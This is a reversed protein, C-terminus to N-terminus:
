KQNVQGEVFSCGEEYIITCSPLISPAFVKVITCLANVEFDARSDLQFYRDMNEEKVFINYFLKMEHIENLGLCSSITDDTMLAEKVFDKWLDSHARILHPHDRHNIVKVVHDPCHLLRLNSSKNLAVDGNSDFLEVNEQLKTMIKFLKVNIHLAKGIWLMATYINTKCTSIARDPKTTYNGKSLSNYKKLQERHFQRICKLMNTIRDVLDCILGFKDTVAAKPFNTACKVIFDMQKSLEEQLDTLHPNIERGFLAVDGKFDSQLGKTVLKGDAMLVIDQKGDLM